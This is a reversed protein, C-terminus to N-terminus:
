AVQQDPERYGFREAWEAAAGLAHYDVRAHVRSLYSESLDSVPESFPTPRQRQRCLFRRIPGSDALGLFAAVQRASREPQTLLEAHSITLQRDEPLEGFFGAIESVYQRWIEHGAQLSGIWGKRVLSRAVLAPHRHIHIFKTRPLVERILRLCSGSQPLNPVAGERGSLVTPDAYPPHKDGWIRTEINLAERYFREAWEGATRRMFALYPAQFEEALLDPRLAQEEIMHKIQAFIRCENTLGIEPHQNLTECLFTTGSRPAGVVILPQSM